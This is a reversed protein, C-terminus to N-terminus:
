EKIGSLNILLNGIEGATTNNTFPVEENIDLKSLLALANIRSRDADEPKGIKEYAEALQLHAAVCENDLYLAQRFLSLGREFDDKELSLIASYYYGAVHGPYKKLFDTVVTEM